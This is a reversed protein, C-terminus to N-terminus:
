KAGGFLEASFRKLAATKFKEASSLKVGEGFVAEPNKRIKSLLLGYTERLAEAFFLKRRYEEPLSAEAFELIEEARLAEYRVLAIKRESAKGTLIDKRTLGFARLTEKPLYVRGRLADENIDRLINTLQVGLGTLEAYLDVRKDQAGFIRVTILGVASAVKFCYERLEAFTEFGEFGIDSEVGELIMRAYEFEIENRLLTESLALYLYDSAKGVEALELKEREREINTRAEEASRADDVADDVIRCFAYLAAMDKRKAAPLLAIAKGFSSGSRKLIWECYEYAGNNSSM